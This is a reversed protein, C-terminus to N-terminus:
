FDPFGRRVAGKGAWLPSVGFCIAGARFLRAGGDRPAEYDRDCGVEVRKGHADVLKAVGKERDVNVASLLFSADLNAPAICVEVYIVKGREHLYKEDPNPVRLPLVGSEYTTTLQESGSTATASFAQRWKREDPGVSGPVCWARAAHPVLNASAGTDYTVDWEGECLQECKLKSKQAFAQLMKEQSPAKSEDRLMQATEPAAAAAPPLANEPDDEALTEAAAAAAAAGVVTGPSPPAIPRPPQYDGWEDRRLSFDEEVALEPNTEGLALRAAEVELRRDERSLHSSMRCDGFSPFETGEIYPRAWAALAAAGAGPLFPPAHALFRLRWETHKDHYSKPADLLDVLGHYGHTWREEEPKNRLEEKKPASLRPNIETFKPVAVMWLGWKFMALNASELLLPSLDRDSGSHWEVVTRRQDVYSHGRVSAFLTKLVQGKTTASSIKNDTAVGLAFALKENLPRQDWFDAKPPAVTSTHLFGYAGNPANAILQLQSVSVQAFAFQLTGTATPAYAGRPPQSCVAERDFPHGSTPSPALPAAPARQAAAAAPAPPLPPSAVASQQVPGPAQPAPLQVQLQQPPLMRESAIAASISGVARAAPLPSAARVTSAVAVSRPSFQVSSESVPAASAVPAQPAFSPHKFVADGSRELLRQASEIGLSSKDLADRAQILEYRTEQFLKLLDRRAPDEVTSLIVEEWNASRPADAAAAAKKPAKKAKGLMKAEEVPAEYSYHAFWGDWDEPPHVLPESSSARRSRKRAWFESGRDFHQMAELYEARESKRLYSRWALGPHVFDDILDQGITTGSDRSPSPSGSRAASSSPAPAPASAKVALKPPASAKVALKKPPPVAKVPRDRVPGLRPAPVKPTLPVPRSLKPAPPGRLVFGTEVPVNEALRQYTLQSAWELEDATAEKILKALEDRRKLRPAEQVPAPAEGLLKASEPKAECVESLFKLEGRTWNRGGPGGGPQFGHRPKGNRRKKPKAKAKAQAQSGAGGGGSSRCTTPTPFADCHWQTSSLLSVRGGAARTRDPARHKWRARPRRCLSLSTSVILRHSTLKRATFLEGNRKFRDLFQRRKDAGYRSGIYQAKDLAVEDPSALVRAAEDSPAASGGKLGGGQPRSGGLKLIGNDVHLQHEAPLLKSVSHVIKDPEGDPLSALYKKLESRLVTWGSLVDVEDGKDDKVKVGSWRNPVLRPAASLFKRVALLESVAEAKAARDLVTEFLIILTALNTKGKLQQFNQLVAQWRWAFVNPVVGLVSQIKPIFVEIVFRLLARHDSSPIKKHLPEVEDWTERIQRVLDDRGRAALCITEKPFCSIRPGGYVVWWEKLQELWEHSLQGPAPGDPAKETSFRSPETVDTLDPTGAAVASSDGKPM